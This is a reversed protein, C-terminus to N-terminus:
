AVNFTTTVTDSYSEWGDQSAWHNWSFVKATYVGPLSTEPLTFMGSFDSTEGAHITGTIAVMQIPVDDHTVLIIQMPVVPSGIMNENTANVVYQAGPAVQSIPNGDGDLVQVNRVVIPYDIPCALDAGSCDQDIGDGCTEPAGPFITNDNDNCDLEPYTCASSAPSGYGDNDNDICVDCGEDVEGYGNDGLCQNDKGDCLEPANPYITADYDNCDLEHYTCYPSAPSGYGDGDNDNCSQGEGTIQISQDGQTGYLDYNAQVTGSFAYTGSAGSMASYTFTKDEVYTNHLGSEIVVCKLVRTAPDYSCKPDNIETLVVGVPIVEKLIYMSPKDTENVNVFINIDFSEDAAATSPLTRTATIPGDCAMDQGDCDEDIGNGCIETAYQSIERNFPECDTTDPDNDNDDDADCADGMGDGDFNEQGPNHVSPCNDYQDEIGDGDSDTGCELDQGNCDEDIGNGCIEVAGHHITQNFPACDSTDPDGDNDDDADCVDGESDGDFNEQGPNSTLPCNDESNPIGDGDSDIQGEFTIESAGTTNYPDPDTTIAYGDLGYTGTEYARVTYTHNADKMQTGGVGFQVWKIRRNEAPSGGGYEIIEFGQPIYEYLFYILPPDAEDIDVSLTITVDSGTQATEPAYRVISMPVAQAYVFSFMSIALLMSVALAGLMSIGNGTCKKM